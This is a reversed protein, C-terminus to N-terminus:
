LIKSSACLNFGRRDTLKIFNGDIRRSCDPSSQTLTFTGSAGEPALLEFQFAYYNTLDFCAKEDKM